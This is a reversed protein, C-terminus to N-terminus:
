SPNNRFAVTPNHGRTPLRPANVNFMLTQTGHSSDPTDSSPRVQLWDTVSPRYSIQWTYSPSGGTVALTATQMEPNTGTSSFTLQAPTISLGAPAVGISSTGGDGGGGGGCGALTIMTAIVLLARLYRM